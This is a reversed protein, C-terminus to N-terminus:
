NDQSPNSAAEPFVVLGTMPDVTMETETDGKFEICKINSVDIGDLNGTGLLLGFSYQTRYRNANLRLTGSITLNELIADAAADGALLGFSAEPALTGDQVTYSVNEFTVDRIVAGSGISGAPSPSSKRPPPM